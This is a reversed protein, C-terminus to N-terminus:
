KQFNAAFGVRQTQCQILIQQGMQGSQTVALAAYPNGSELYCRIIQDSLLKVDLDKSSSRPVISQHSRARKDEMGESESSEESSNRESCSIVSPYAIITNWSRIPTSDFSSLTVSHIWLLSTLPKHLSLSANLIVTLPLQLRDLLSDIPSPFATDSCNSLTHRHSDLQQRSRKRSFSSSKPLSLNSSKPLSLNSSEPLSRNLDKPVPSFLGCHHTYDYFVLQRLRTLAQLMGCKVSQSGNLCVRVLCGVSSDRRYSLGEYLLLSLLLTRSVRGEATSEPLCNELVPEIIRFPSDGVLSLLFRLASFLSDVSSADPAFDSHSNFVPVEQTMDEQGLDVSSPNSCSRDIQRRVCLSWLLPHNRWQSANIEQITPHCMLSRFGSMAEKWGPHDVEKLFSVAMLDLCQILLDRRPDTDSVPETSPNALM